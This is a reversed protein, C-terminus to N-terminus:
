SVKISYSKIASNGATDSAYYILVYDGSQPFVAEKSSIEVIEGVTNIYYIKVSIDSDLNDTAVAVPIKLAKGAMAYSPVTGKINLEPKTRDYVNFDIETRVTKNSSDKAIYAVVYSGYETVTFEIEKSFDNESLVTEGDPSIVEVRTEVVRGLVDFAIAPQLTIKSGFLVEGEIDNFFINPGTTDSFIMSGFMQNAIKVVNLTAGKYEFRLYYAGSTFGNFDNGNETYYAAGLLNGKADVFSKTKNSYIFQLESTESFANVSLVNRKGNIAFVTKGDSNKSVEFKIQEKLNVSDTLYVSLSTFGANVRPLSFSILVNEADIKRVFSVNSDGQSAFSISLHQLATEVNETYFYNEVFNEGTTPNVVRIDTSYVANGNDGQVTITLNKLGEFTPVFYNDNLPTGDISITFNKDVAQGSSYDVASIGSLDLRDGVVMVKPINVLSIIPVESVSVALEKEFAKSYAYEALTIRVKYVGAAVPLFSNGILDVKKDNFLVEKTLTGKETLGNVNGNPIVIEKGVQLSSEFEGFEYELEAIENPNLIIVSITKASENGSNDVASYEILYIGSETPLFAGDTIKLEVKKNGTKKYVRVNTEKVFGLIDSTSFDFIKYRNNVVGYPIENESYGEYDVIISPAVNDVNEAPIMSQGDVSIIMLNASEASLKYFVIEMTVMGSSFGNFVNNIGVTNPDKLDALLGKLTGASEIQSLYVRDTTNDYYIKVSQSPHNNQFKGYFSTMITKKNSFENNNNGCVSAYCVYHYLDSITIRELRVTVQEEANVSDTLVIDLVSFEYSDQEKPMIFLELLLDNLTNDTLNILKGYRIKTENEHAAVALGRYNDDAYAPASRNDEFSVSGDSVWLGSGVSKVHLGIEYESGDYEYILAYDGQEDLVAVENRVTKGDPYVLTANVTETGVNAVPLAFTEGLVRVRDFEGVTFKPKSTTVNFTFDESIENGYEDVAKYTVTTQGERDFTHSYGNKEINIKEGNIFADVAFDCNLQSSATAYPLLLDSGVGIEMGDFLEFDYNLTIEPSNSFVNIFLSESVGHLGNSDVPTYTIKYLGNEDPIFKGDILPVAEGSPSTVAIDGSFVDSFGDIVDYTLVDLPVTYETNKVGNIFNNFKCIVSSATNVLPKGGLSQGNYKLALIEANGNVGIFEADVSYENFYEYIAHSNYFRVFLSSDRLDMIATKANGIYSYVVMERADFSLRCTSDKQNDFSFTAEKVVSRDTRQPIAVKVAPKNGGDFAFDALFSVSFTRLTTTETFTFKIESFDAVGTQNAVVRFEFDFEKYLNNSFSFGANKNTKISIGNYHDYSANDTFTTGNASFIREYNNQEQEAFANDFLFPMLLLFSLVAIVILLCKIGTTKM